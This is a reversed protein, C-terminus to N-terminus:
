DQKQNNNKQEKLHYDESATKSGHISYFSKMKDIMILLNINGMWVYM